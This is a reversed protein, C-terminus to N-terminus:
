WYYNLDRDVTRCIEPFFVCKKQPKYNLETSFLVRCPSRHRKMQTWMGECSFIIMWTFHPTDICTFVYQAHTDDPASPKRWSCQATSVSM